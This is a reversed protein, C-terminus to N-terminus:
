FEALVLGRGPGEEIVQWSRALGRIIDLEEVCFDAGLHTWLVWVKEGRPPYHKDGLVINPVPLADPYSRVQAVSCVSVWLTSAVEPKIEALLPRINEPAEARVYRVYERVSYVSRVALFIYFLAQVTQRARWQTLVFRAGELALIQTHIQAFLMVRGACIPYSLVLSALVMGGLLVLSGLSRSGWAMDDTARARWRRFVAYVGLLQLLAIGATVPPQRGHWGWMFKVLLTVASIPNQELCTRLICDKWYALYANRNTLNFRQDTLWIGGLTLAISTVFIFAATKNVRWSTRRGQDLYWGAVRAGLAFPYTYSLLCPLALAVLVAKRKGAVLTTKFVEDGLVFPVLALLVDFTYQKLQIAQDLWFSAGILFAASAVGLAAIPQSRKALARAWFVTAAMFCVFPLLRLSWIHYGFAERVLAIVSLYLRPFFQGYELSAFITARSPTRLPVAIFAEDLWFSPRAIYRMAGAIIVALTAIPVAWRNILGRKDTELRVRELM